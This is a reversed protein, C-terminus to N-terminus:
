FEREVLVKATSKKADITTGAGGGLGVQVGKIGAEGDVFEGTVSAGPLANIAKGLKGGLKKAIGKKGLAGGIEAATGGLDEVDAPNADTGKFVGVEGSVSAGTDAISLLAKEISSMKQGSQESIGLASTQFGYTGGMQFKYKGNPQKSFSVAFEGSVGFGKGLFSGQADVGLTIAARGDPDVYKYPNNNAYAYRNFGHFNGQSVFSAASVPDNSYFRGIVPDYYRAQMYTLGTSDDKQHGTFGIDNSNQSPNIRSEGYPNYSENWLVNGSQDMAAVPSGLLDNVYYTVTEAELPTIILAIVFALLYKFKTM